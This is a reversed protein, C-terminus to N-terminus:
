RYEWTPLLLVYTLSIGVAQRKAHAILFESWLLVPLKPNSKANVFEKIKHSKKKVMCM